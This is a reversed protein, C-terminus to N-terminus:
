ELSAGSDACDPDPAGCACNCTAGDAFQDAPCTWGGPVCHGGEACRQNFGCGVIPRSAECDPDTAGCNCDCTLGDDYKSADCVWGPATALGGAGGTATPFFGGAGGVGNARGGRGAATLTPDEPASNDSTCGLSLALGAGGLLALLLARM